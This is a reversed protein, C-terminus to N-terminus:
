AGSPPRPFAMPLDLYIRHEAFLWRGEVKRLTPRYYGSEIPRVTGQAGLAGAPWGGTPEEAGAVEYVIFQADLTASDGDVTIIPDMTTHHSWGRASHPKMMASVARGIEEPGRLQALHAAASGAGAFIEVTGDPVFLRAMAAGDRADTARVYRAMTEQVKREESM